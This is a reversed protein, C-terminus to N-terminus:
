KLHAQLKAKIKAARDSVTYDEYGIEAISYGQRRFHEMSLRIEHHVVSSVGSYMKSFDVVYVALKKDGAEVLFDAFFPYEVM